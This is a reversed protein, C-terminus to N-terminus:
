SILYKKDMVTALILSKTSLILYKKYLSLYGNFHFSFNDCAIDDFIQEDFFESDLMVVGKHKKHLFYRTKIASLVFLLLLILPM